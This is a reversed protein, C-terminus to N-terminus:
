DVPAVPLGMSMWDQLGGRYYAIREPAVGAELLSEVARPTAACQPGNCFLVVVGGAFLDLHDTIEEWHIARAGPITGSEAVYEPRRTDIAVGRQEIHEIVELEGITPIQPHLVAPQIVGWWPDIVLEGDDALHPVLHPSHGDPAHSRRLTRGSRAPDISCASDAM